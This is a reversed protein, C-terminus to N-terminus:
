KQRGAVRGELASELGSVINATGHLYSLPQSDASSDLERGAGDTLTYHVSVVCNNAIKM